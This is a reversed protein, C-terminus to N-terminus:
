VPFCEVVFYGSAQQGASRVELGAQRALEGFEAVTRRKGGVLVTEIELSKPADDPGVSKLVVVHGAPRAAEACRRLIAAAERDPWDNLIGRLLYLDAGAPLADFFSQGVTTVRGAVGAANFTEDSRAVTRPLDVLTGRIAPRMRLIAALMAGTGGGVDVVTRVAEWGGTIQFDAKFSGHGSPVVLADFSAAVDPHADLDEWFPLGFHEHYAPAGTRVYSLLTGWAYAMRGGIRDLDLGLHLAPDLLGRAADNLAFRGPATEQFVGKGVLHGLVRHLADADCGAAAALSGIEVHGAAIHEAIRLTAVVHLCWPTRLDSLAGLDAPEHEPM